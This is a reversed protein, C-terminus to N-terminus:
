TRCRLRGTSLIQLPKTESGQKHGSTFRAICRRLRTAWRAPPLTNLLCNTQCRRLWFVPCRRMALGFVSRECLVIQPSLSIRCAVVRLGPPQIRPIQISLYRSYLRGSAAVLETEGDSNVVFGDNRPEAPQLKIMPSHRSPASRRESQRLGSPRASLPSTAAVTARDSTSIRVRSVSFVRAVTENM